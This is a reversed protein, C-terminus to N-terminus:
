SWPSAALYHPTARQWRCRRNRVNITPWQLSCILPRARRRRLVGTPPSSRSGRTASCRSSLRRTRRRSVVPRHPRADAACARVDVANGRRLRCRYRGRRRVGTLDHNAGGPEASRRAACWTERGASSSPLTVHRFIRTCRRRGAVGDIRRGSTPGRMAAAVRCFAIGFVIPSGRM